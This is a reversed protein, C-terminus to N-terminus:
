LLRGVEQAVRKGSSIAGDMYGSWYGATETGAWHVRGVPRKLAPGYSLLTGSGFVATPGGRSWKAGPWNTEFYDTPSHSEPGFYDAFNKLVEARRQDAPLTLFRRAEDGGVFGFLVGPSGDPPSDDYTVNVPGNYSVASGTLGAERWFPREYVATVKLLRGQPARVALQERGEPLGPSYAIRGALVPPVAVIVRKARVTLRKSEVRM